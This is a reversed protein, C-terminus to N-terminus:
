ESEPDDASCLFEPHNYQNADERCIALGCARKCYEVTTMCGAFDGNCYCRFTDDPCKEGVPDMSPTAEASLSCITLLAVSCSLFKLKKWM